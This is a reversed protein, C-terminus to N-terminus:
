VPLSLAMTPPSLSSVLYAANLDSPLSSAKPTSPMVTQSGTVRLFHRREFLKAASPRRRAARVALGHGQSHKTLRIVRIHLQPVHSGPLHLVRQVHTAWAFAAPNSEAGVALSECGAAPTYLQPIYGAAPQLCLEIPIRAAPYIANREARFALKEGRPNFV